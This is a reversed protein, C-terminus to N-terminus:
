MGVLDHMTLGEGIVHLDPCHVCPWQGPLRVHKIKTCRARLQDDVHIKYCDSLDLCELHPCGDLIAYVGKNTLNNGSIQLLRLEHMNEAIAFAEENQRAEWQEFPEEHEEDDEDEDENYHEKMEHEMEDYDFYPMHIRLCKLQPRVSGVYEFFAASMKHFSCEIEELLPCNAALTALSEGWVSICAILRISRLTSITRRVIYDLLECTVFKQAWFSVMQGNSRDIAVKAMACLIHTRKSFIVKHRTMDVFRWLEPSKSAALWSHCVFSAGMLIEVTGLKMFIASLADVPLESWDRDTDPIPIPDVEMMCVLPNLDDYYINKSDACSEPSSYDEYYDGYSGNDTEAHIVDSELSRVENEWLYEMTIGYDKGEDEDIFCLESIQLIRLEHMTEAIAFADKNKWAEWEDDSEEDDEDEDQGMNEDEEEEDDMDEDEDKKADQKMKNGDEEEEMNDDEDEDEEGEGEGKEDKDEDEDKDEEDDEDNDEDDEEDSDDHMMEQGMEHEMADDDFWQMLIRLCKLQPRVRGIYELSDSSVKNESCEIEELLPCQTALKALSEEWFIRCDILRIRKLSSGRCAIYDLLESTVFKQALFSEMQGQSRDIAVKAMACMTDIGKSFVVKHRTMDVSRWLEPLKAAALWSRCVLGAGMLVEINGLKMFISSLADTSLESWDRAPPMPLTCPELEMIDVPVCDYEDSDSYDDVHSWIPRDVQFDYDDTSDHPLRLTKIRACKARLTDDVSVNFCHRIDLSELHPCNDLIATLGENSLNNAFLQLSRLEHMTAIGLAEEDKNYESHEFSYFCRKSLRFRKLQPCAKGVAKFVNNEGINDCLSLELEELLPFKTVAVSFGEDLIDFCSILRLSRLFPAREGLFHLLDEDAAYEGWFAECLGASRRVAEQAMGFLNLEFSLDAHGRMDIRRWLRPVDRAARRWSRCVQGAGMLIEIHDLKHFVALIAELPLGSGWDRAEKRGRGLGRRGRRRRGSSPNPPAAAAPMFYDGYEEHLYDYTQDYREYDDYHGEGDCSFPLKLTNIRACKNRVAEDIDLWYCESVDLLELHPCGDLIASLENNGIYMGMLTLQRLQVMMAIGLPEDVVFSPCNDSYRRVELRKLQPCLKAILEYVNGSGFGCNSLVLNQKVHHLYFDHRFLLELNSKLLLKPHGKLGNSLATFQSEPIKSARLQILLARLGNLMMRAEDDLEDENIDDDLCENEETYVVFELGPVMYDDDLDDSSNGSDMLVPSFIHFEYDDTSDDPLRLAKIRACKARLTDDMFVNFCHRIDLSELHLCNDLIALLGKNTINNGFIQLSRLRTMTSIGLAEDDKMNDEFYHFGHESLRFRKLHPCSKGVKEFVNKGFVNVTLSLELEELLPFKKIAEGFGESSVGYCCILRLSKLAPAADGLFLLFRDDGAGEGWFAECQGRSRRVAARAMGHLDVKLAAHGRMDIRRWLGPDDRAARRWSRCVQGAGTLINVHDGLGRLVASIAEPPLERWDRSERPGSGHGRGSRRRGCTINRLDPSSPEDPSSPSSYDEWYNNGYLADEKASKARLALSVAEGLDHLVFGDDEGIFHLDRRHAYPWRLPPLWVRKVKACRARFEEDVDANFCDSLDLCELNPCGELIAYVGKNTLSNGAIQLLQLEHLTEAIAFAQENHRAERAHPPEIPDVNWDLRLLDQMKIKWVVDTHYWKMQVRLRKLQPCVRGILRFFSAPLPRDQYSYEIEELLPCKAALIILSSDWYECAILRISKLSPAMQGDSRDIALKAMKCIAGADKTVIVNHRTMDVCRYLEPLRAAALWSHCVLGAGMLIEVTGLKKFIAALADVPLESWDRAPLMPLPNSEVEMKRLLLVYKDLDDEYSPNYDDDDDYESEESYMSELDTYWEISSRPSLPIMTPPYVPFDYDDTSDTPTRLMKIRACKARLSDDMAEGMDVNFCHRIDLSELQPCNDLIASLGENTINNAFLQLSRLGHMDAIALADQDNKWRTCPSDHFSEKSLRFRKFQPCAAGIAVYAEHTVNDCFSLELEELLPFEKTAEEIGENSVGLCSILRLSKLCSAQETLYMLFSDDGAFEGCFAECLGASRRVAACVQDAAMLIGLHDLRHFVALIADVPLGAWDREEAAAVMAAKRRRRHAGRGRRRRSSPMIPPQTPNPNPSPLALHFTRRNGKDLMRYDQEDDFETVHIGYLYYRYPEFFYDMDIFDNMRDYYLADFCMSSWPSPPGTFDDDGYDSDSEEGNYLDTDRMSCKTGRLIGNNERLIEHCGPVDLTELLPCSQIIAAVGEESVYSSEILRISRLYPAKEALLFLVDDDGGKKSWFAECRGASRRVAERALDDFANRRYRLWVPLRSPSNMSLYTSTAGFCPEDCAVAPM